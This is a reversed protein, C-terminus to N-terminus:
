KKKNRKQPNKEVGKEMRVGCKGQAEELFLGRAM